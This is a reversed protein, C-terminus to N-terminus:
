AYHCPSNIHIIEVARTTWLVGQNCNHWSSHFPVWHRFRVERCGRNYSKRYIIQGTLWYLFPEFRHSIKQTNKLRLPLSRWASSRRFIIWWGGRSPFRCGGRRSFRRSRCCSCSGCGGSSCSRGSGCGPLNEFVLKLWMQRKRNKNM